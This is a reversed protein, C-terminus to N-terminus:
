DRGLLFGYTIGDLASFKKAALWCSDLNLIAAVGKLRRLDTATKGSPPSILIIYLVYNVYIDM